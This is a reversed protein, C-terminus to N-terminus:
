PQGGAPALRVTRGSRASERAADLIRAVTVNNALASLDTPEVRAAGRVVAAFYAFPDGLPSPREDPEREEEARGEDRRLRLTARDPVLVYGREGYVEM